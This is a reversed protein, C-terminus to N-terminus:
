VTITQFVMGRKYIQILINKSSVDGDVLRLGWDAKILFIDDGILNIEKGGSLVTVYNGEKNIDLVKVNPIWFNAMYFNYAGALVTIAGVIAATKLITNSTKSLSDSVQIM